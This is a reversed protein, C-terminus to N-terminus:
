RLAERVLGPRSLNQRGGASAASSTRSRRRSLSGKLGCTYNRNHEARSLVGDLLPDDHLFAESLDSPGITSLYGVRWVTEASQALHTVLPSAVAVAGVNALFDRRRM